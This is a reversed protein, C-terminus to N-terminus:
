SSKQLLFLFLFNDEERTTYFKLSGLMKTNNLAMGWTEPYLPYEISIQQFFLRSFLLNDTYTLKNKFFLLLAYYNRPLTVTQAKGMEVEVNTMLVQGM